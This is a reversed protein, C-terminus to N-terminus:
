EIANMTRISSRSEFSVNKFAVSILNQFDQDVDFKVQKQKCYKFRKELAELLFGLMDRYRESQEAVRALFIREKICKGCVFSIQARPVCM